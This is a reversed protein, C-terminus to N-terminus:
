IHVYIYKKYIYIYIHVEGQVQAKRAGLAAVTAGFLRSAAAARDAPAGLEARRRAHRRVGQAGRAPALPTGGTSERQPAIASV